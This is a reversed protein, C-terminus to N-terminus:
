PESASRAQNKWIKLYKEVLAEPIQAEVYEQIKKGLYLKHSKCLSIKSFAMYIGENTVPNPLYELQERVGAEEAQALGPYLGYLFYRNRGNQMKKFLLEFRAARDLELKKKAFKDFAEGYSDGLRIGGTLGILDDWKGYKFAKGKMVFIVAPDGMCAPQVYELYTERKENRYLGAIMDIEGMEAKLLSRRWPGVYKSEVPIGIEAFAKEALEIAVGIIKGPNETDQWSIPPYEPDSTIVIKKCEGAHAAGTLLTAIIIAFLLKKMMCSLVNCEMPRSGSTDTEPSPNSRLRAYPANEPNENFKSMPKM